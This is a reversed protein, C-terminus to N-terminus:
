EGDEKIEELAYKLVQLDTTLSDLLETSLIDGSVLLGYKLQMSRVLEITQEIDM